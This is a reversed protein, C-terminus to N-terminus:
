HYAALEKMLRIQDVIKLKQPCAQQCKGCETCRTLAGEPRLGNLYNRRMWQEIDEPAIGALKADRLAQMLGSPSFGNTCVECYRCGTCPTEGGKKNTEAEVVSETTKEGKTAEFEALVALDLCIQEPGCAGVLAATVGGNELLFRLAARYGSALVGGGLPNMIFIGVGRAAAYRINEDEARNSSNYSVTACLFEGTDVAARFVDPTGHFTFGVGVRILGDVMARRVGDLFGGKKLAANLTDMSSLGWLQYFDFYDLEARHLSNEIARRVASENPASGYQSKSSFLVDKRRAKVARGSWVESRGGVYGTSTDLYNMGADVGMHVAKRCSEESAWRMTGFSLASIDINTKGLKRYLM